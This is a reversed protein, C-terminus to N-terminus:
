MKPFNLKSRRSSLFVLSPEAGSPSFCKRHSESCGRSNDINKIKGTLQTPFSIKRSTLYASHLDYYCYSPMVNQEGTNWECLSSHLTRLISWYILPERASLLYLSGLLVLLLYLGEHKLEVPMQPCQFSCCTTTRQFHVSPFTQLRDNRLM